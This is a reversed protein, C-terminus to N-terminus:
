PPGRWGYGAAICAKSMEDLALQEFPMARLRAPFACDQPGDAQAKAREMLGM